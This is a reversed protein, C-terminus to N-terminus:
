RIVWIPEKIKQLVKFHGTPTDIGGLMGVAVPFAARLSGQDLLLLRCNARLM